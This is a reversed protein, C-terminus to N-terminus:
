PKTNGALFRHVVAFGDRGGFSSDLLVGQRYLTEHASSNCLPTIVKSVAGRTFLPPTSPTHNPKLRFHSHVAPWELGSMLSANHNTIAVGMHHTHRRDCHERSQRVFRQTAACISYGPTSRLSVGPPSRFGVFLRTAACRDRGALPSAGVCGGPAWARRMGSPHLGNGSIRM